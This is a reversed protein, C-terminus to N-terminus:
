RLKLDHGRGLGKIHIALQREGPLCEKERPPPHAPAHGNDTM